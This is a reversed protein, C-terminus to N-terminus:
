TRAVSGSWFTLPVVLVLLPLFLAPQTRSAFSAFQPVPRFLFARRIEVPKLQLRPGVHHLRGQATSVGSSVVTESSEM